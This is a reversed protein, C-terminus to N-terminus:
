CLSIMIRLYLILSTQNWMKCIQKINLGRLLQMQYFLKIEDGEALREMGEAKRGNLVINKKRMMKYFFSKPADPMFKGLFKDLRQGEDQSTIKLVQM